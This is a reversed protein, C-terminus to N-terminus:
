AIGMHLHSMDSFRILNKSVLRKKSLQCDGM